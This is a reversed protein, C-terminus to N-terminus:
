PWLVYYTLIDDLRRATTYCPPFGIVKKNTSSKRRGIDEDCYDWEESMLFHISKVRLIKDFREVCFRNNLSIM